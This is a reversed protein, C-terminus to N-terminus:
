VKKWTMESVMAIMDELSCVYTLWRKRWTEVSRRESEDRDLWIADLSTQDAVDDLAELFSPVRSFAYM